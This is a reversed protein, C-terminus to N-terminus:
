ENKLRLDEINPNNYIQYDTTTWFNSINNEFCMKNKIQNLTLKIYGQEDIIQSAENNEISGTTPNYGLIWNILNQSNEEKIVGQKNSPIISLMLNLPRYWEYKNKQAINEKELVVKNYTAIKFGSDLIEKRNNIIFGASLYIMSGIKNENKVFNWAQSNSEATSITHSGYNGKILANNLPSNSDYKILRSDKYFADATGSVDAGGTRAFPIIPTQDTSAGIDSFKYQKNGAFAAYISNITDKNIDIETASNQPKYIIGMGDWAITITKIQKKIWIKEDNKEKDTVGGIINPSKSAMGIEKSGDIVARIGAGSGGAQTVLDSSLYKNSFAVMLPQVASSGAVNIIPTTVLIGSTLILTATTVIFGLSILITKLKINKMYGNM